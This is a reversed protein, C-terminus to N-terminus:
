VAFWLLLTPVRITALKDISDTWTPHFVIITEVIPALKPHIGATLAIAGGLDYGLLITKNKKTFEFIKVM